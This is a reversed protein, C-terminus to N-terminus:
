RYKYIRIDGKPTIWCGEDEEWRVLNGDLIINKGQKRWSGVVKGDFTTTGDKELRYTKTANILSFAVLDQISERSYDVNVYVVYPGGFTTVGSCSSLAVAIFLTYFIRKM